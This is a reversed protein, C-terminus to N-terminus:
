RAPIECKNLIRMVRNTTMGLIRAAEQQCELVLDVAYEEEFWAAFLSMGMSYDDSEKAVGTALYDRVTQEMGDILTRKLMEIFGPMNPRKDNRGILDGM